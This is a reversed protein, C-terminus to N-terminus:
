TLGHHFSCFPHFSALNIDPFCAQGLVVCGACWLVRGLMMMVGVLCSVGQNPAPDCACMLGPSAPM